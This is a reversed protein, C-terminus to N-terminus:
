FYFGGQVWKSSWEYQQVATWAFFSSHNPFRYYDSPALDPSCTHISLVGLGVLEFKCKTVSAIHKPTNEYQLLVYRQNVLAQYIAKLGNIYESCNNPMSIQTWLLIMQSLRWSCCNMPIKAVFLSKKKWVTQCCIQQMVLKMFSSIGGTLIIFIFRNKVGIKLKIGYVLVKFEEGLLHKWNKM